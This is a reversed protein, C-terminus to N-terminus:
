QNIPPPNLLFLKYVDPVDRAQLWGNLGCRWVLTSTTLAGRKIYEALETANCPGVQACGEIVFYYNPHSSTMSNEVGPVRMEAISHNMTSIMQQAVAMSMGFEVLRDISSFSNDDM